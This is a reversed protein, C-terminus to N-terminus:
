SEATVVAFALGDHGKSGVTQVATATVRREGKLREFFLRVGQVNPDASAPDLIAGRRVVNDVVIWTGVRALKLAWDFYHPINAKDADIFVFDFPQPREDALQALSHLAPGVRIDVRERVGARTLNDSAVAAHKPDLELTVVRGEPGLGRALWLTSYGGLTGIELVRQAGLGQVLLSLLKGQNPAVQIEPLGSAKSRQVAGTLSADEHVGHDNLYHDIDEWSANSM